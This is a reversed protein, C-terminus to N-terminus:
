ASIREAGVADLERQHDEVIRKLDAVLRVLGAVRHGGVEPPAGARRRTGDAAVKWRGISVVQVGGRETVEARFLEHRNLSYESAWTM